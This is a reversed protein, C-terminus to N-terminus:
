EHTLEGDPTVKIFAIKTQNELEITAVFGISGDEMEKIAGPWNSDEGGFLKNWVLEGNAAVKLLAINSGNDEYLVGLVLFGGDSSQVVSKLEMSGIETFQTQFITAANSTVRVMFPTRLANSFSTGVMAYGGDRLRVIDAAEEAATTGYLQLPFTSTQDGITNTPFLFLNTRDQPMNDSPKHDTTGFFVYGSERDLIKVGIDEGDWGYTNRWLGQSVMNEDMEFSFLDSIDSNVNTAVSNTYGTVIFSGGRTTTINSAVVNYGAIGFTDSQILSGQDDVKLVLVERNSTSNRTNAVVMYSGSPTLVMDVVEDINEGLQESWLENGLLDTRVLYATNANVNEGLVLYGDTLIEFDVAEQDGDVGYYKIFYESYHTEINNETDCAVIGTFILCILALKRKM